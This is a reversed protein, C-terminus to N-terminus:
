EEIMSPFYMSPFILYPSPPPRPPSVTAKFAVGLVLWPNTRSQTLTAALPSTAINPQSETAIAYTSLWYNSYGLSFGSGATFTIAAGTGSPNLISAIAAILDSGTLTLNGSTLSTGSLSSSNNTSEATITAGTTFSWEEIALGIASTQAPTATVTFSSGGATVVSYYIASTTIYGSYPVQNCTAALSYINGTKNDTMTFSSPTSGVYTNTVYVVILNGATVSSGLTVPLSAANGASTTAGVTAQAKTWSM